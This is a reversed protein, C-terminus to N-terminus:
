KAAISNASARERESFSALHKFALLALATFLITQAVHIWFWSDAGAEWILRRVADKPWVLTFFTILGIFHVAIGPLISNALYATAGFMVDVCLYFLMTPWGFGQTSGHGPAMVLAAILIAFPGSFREELLVQFYGRFGAEEAAAGVLSAMGLALAVTVIPYQSFDPLPNGHMKVLQFLVTWFGALAVISLMGAFVAWAFVPASVPRARLCRQRAASTSRPVWKGDLYQWALWLLLAMVAVSWPIQPSILLNVRLLAAWIAGTLM